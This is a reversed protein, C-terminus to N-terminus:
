RLTFYSKKFRVNISAIRTLDGQCRITHVLERAKREREVGFKADSPLGWVLRSGSRTYLVIGRQGKLDLDDDLHIDSLLGADLQPELTRWLWLAEQLREGGGRKLARLIPRPSGAPPPMIGPLIRGEADVWARTGSALVAPLVPLRLGIVIEVTRQKGDAEHLARVQAVERVISQQRLWDALAGLAAADPYELTSLRPYRRVLGLLDREAIRPGPLYTIRVGSVKAPTPPVDRASVSLVVLACLAAVAAGGWLGLRRGVSGTLAVGRLGAHVGQTVLGPGSTLSEKAVPKVKPKEAEAQVKRAPRRRTTPVEDVEDGLGAFLTDPMVATQPKKRAPKRQREAAALVGQPDGSHSRDDYDSNM